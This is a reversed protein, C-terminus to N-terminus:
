SCPSVKKGLRRRLIFDPRPLAPMRKVAWLLNQAHLREVTGSEPTSGSCSSRKYGPGQMDRTTAVEAEGQYAREPFPFSPRLLGWRITIPETSSEGRPLEMVSM